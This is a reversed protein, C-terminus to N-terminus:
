RLVARYFRRTANTAAPDTFVVTGNTNVLWAVGEWDVLNTSSQVQFTSPAPASLTLVPLGNTTWGAWALRAPESLGAFGLTVNTVSV